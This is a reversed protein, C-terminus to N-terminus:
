FKNKSNIHKYSKEKLRNFIEELRLKNEFNDTYDEKSNNNRMKKKNYNQFIL